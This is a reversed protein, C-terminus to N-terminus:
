HLTYLTLLPLVMKKEEKLRLNTTVNEMVYIIENHLFSLVPCSLMGTMKAFAEM